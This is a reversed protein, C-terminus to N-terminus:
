LKNITLLAESIEKNKILVKVRVKIPLGNSPVVSATFTKTKANFKLWSPLASGNELQAKYSVLKENSTTIGVFLTTPV